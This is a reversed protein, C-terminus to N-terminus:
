KTTEMTPQPADATTDTLYGSAPLQAEPPATPAAVDKLAKDPLAYSNGLLEGENVIEPFLVGPVAQVAFIEQVGGTFKLYAITEGTHIHVAWVGSLREANDDTIPIDTFPTTGRLQSLGIFAIPGLFDIGRCFGPVRAIDHREGTKPDVTCLAGRGSELVWLRNDYWRPSHPMSLGRTVVRNTTIDIIVGGDRKNARWGEHTNTEGLASVYRPIG